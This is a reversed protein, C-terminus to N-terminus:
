DLESKGFNDLANPKSKQKMAKIAFSFSTLPDDKNSIEDMDDTAIRKADIARKYEMSELQERTPKKYLKLLLSSCVVSVSSLAMAASGMWPQMKLGLPSFVGAAVPVGIINYICAFMFNLWIRHVTTKSLDLCAIVDLLDNRILVVDAAEVAVDTGSGIAIGIDAEALAPSDNVGDGVMAVKHGEAKLKKIKAVKHSPLVEAYVRSIGVQAAIAKATKKNDGTLLIVDLGMKKLTHVTLHAEPKVTDAISIVAIIRDNVAALVATRGLEEERVMRKEVEGDIDLANRKMWERNGILVDFYGMAVTENDINVLKENELRELLLVERKALSIDVYTGNLLFENNGQDSERWNVFKTVNESHRGRQILNDIHSVTVKLGCGPVAQFNETKGSMESGLTKNVFKVIAGALPHESSSEAMGLIALITSFSLSDDHIWEQLICMRAVTPYGHTITGTKDFVVTDVKHANELPEAGKILIGNVAGVGTGVMVATPTALGLSCPCAIALVTLAMRFAFQWTIEVENYGGREMMSVPLAINHVYGVIVWSILTLISFSVVIPVFYGAIKDALQQIPAKSTQAEEVLKVIQSIATDEGVHTAKIILAGNQNIAGGIMMSDKEKRVPMSEGTILSEDCMSEGSIVKGDVPVKAGPLVKLLDGRQVLEASIVKESILEGNDGIEVILAETAKLSLLKALADSTKAKAIHELWRGLSIFVMLMPPTDFFTMPSTDEGMAMSAIVVACSYLYSITTALVVLVDMNTSGHRVAAWAQIYFHRGGIFQVPTSLLFLLTNELSLGPVICCDDSHDHDKTSMEIMYYMMIVMCPLGFILSIMFSNRWKRIDEKHDPMGLKDEKNFISAQFGLNNIAEVIDRPGLKEQDYKIKGRETSLAVAASTIGPVKVLNSEIMFVCSSCTMGKISVEIEDKVHSNEIVTTPFGLKAIGDAIRQPQIISPDYDVEAKAAMLAVLVSKVGDMKIAHKEIAAVCSACTMGQVRLWCKYHPTSQDATTEQLTSSSATRADATDEDTIEIITSFSKLSATFKTGIENIFKVFHQPNTVQPDFEITALKDELSVDCSQVGEIEEVKGTINRVCSQCSMGEIHVYCTESILRATFKTGVDDVEEAVKSSSTLNTDFEVVAEKQELSVKIDLVGEVNKMKTQIYNVCKGCTMGEVHVRTSGKVREVNQEGSYGMGGTLPNVVSASFKEPNCEEIYGAIIDPATVSPDYKVTARGGELSVVISEVGLKTEVSEQIKRVCSGCTMGRVTIVVTRAADAFGNGGLSDDLHDSLDSLVKYGVRDMGRGTLGVSAAFSVVSAVQKKM